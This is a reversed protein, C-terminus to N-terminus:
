TVKFKTTSTVSGDATIVTIKGTKAGTPVKVKIKTATDKIIKTTTANNFKIMIAGALNTGKITVVTGVPGSAPSIRTITPVGHVGFITGNLQSLSPSSNADITASLCPPDSSGSFVQGYPFTTDSAPSEVPSWGGNGGDASPDWWELITSATVNNCDEVVVSSFTSGPSTAVDFYNTGNTLTGVPDTEYQAETITDVGDTGGTATATVQSSGTTATGDTSVAASVTISTSESTYNDDGSYSATVTYPSLSASEDIACSGSGSSLIPISCSGGQNDSVTMSGTPTPGTGNVIVGYTVPGFTAPLTSEPVLSLSSETASVAGIDCPNPWPVGRQDTGTCDAADTM